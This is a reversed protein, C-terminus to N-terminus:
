RHPSKILCFDCITFDHRDDASDIKAQCKCSPLIALKGKSWLRFRAPVTHRIVIILLKTSSNSITFFGINNAIAYHTM